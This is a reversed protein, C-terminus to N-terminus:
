MDIKKFLCHERVSGEVGLRNEEHRSLLRTGLDELELSFYDPCIVKTSIFQKYIEVQRDEGDEMHSTYPAGM